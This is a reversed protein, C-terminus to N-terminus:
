SRVGFIPPLQALGVHLKAKTFAWLINVINAVVSATMLSVMLAVLAMTEPGVFRNEFDMRFLYLWSALATYPITFLFGLLDHVLLHQMEKKQAFIVVISDWLLLSIYFVCQLILFLFIHKQALLFWMLALTFQSFLRLYWEAQPVGKLARAKDSNTEAEAEFVYYFLLSAFPSAYFIVNVIWNYTEGNPVYWLANDQDWIAYLASLLTILLSSLFSVSLQKRYETM